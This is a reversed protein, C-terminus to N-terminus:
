TNSHLLQWQRKVTVATNIDSIYSNLNQYYENRAESPMNQLMFHIWQYIDWYYYTTNKYRYKGLCIGERIADMEPPCDEPRCIIFVENINAGHEQNYQTLCDYSDRIRALDFKKVTIEYVKIVKGLENSEENIDGPKKSTTSTVSARDDGGTVKVRPHIVSHYAELLFAAIKQPTNGADPANDVLKTSIDFLREPDSSPPVEINYSMADKKAAILRRLLSIGVGDILSPNKELLQVINVVSDASAKPTRQAAWESNLGTTAKAINLPGSKRHPLEKEILFEKIPGEYISRPKCDYLHVSAKYTNDLKMAIIVVLLIERFGWTDTSFLNNLDNSYLSEDIRIEKQSATDFLENLINRINIDRTENKSM